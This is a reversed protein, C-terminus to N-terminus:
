EVWLVQVLQCLQHSPLHGLQTPSHDTGEDGDVDVGPVNHSLHDGILYTHVCTGWLVIHIYVGAQLPDLKSHTASAIGGASMKSRVITRSM